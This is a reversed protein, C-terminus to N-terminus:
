WSTTCMFVGYARGTAIAMLRRCVVKANPVLSCDWSLLDWNCVIMDGDMMRMGVMGLSLKVINFRTMDSKAYRPLYEGEHDSVRTGKATRVSGLYTLEHYNYRVLM